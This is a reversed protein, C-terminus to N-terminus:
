SLVSNIVFNGWELHALMTQWQVTFMNQKVYLKPSSKNGDLTM